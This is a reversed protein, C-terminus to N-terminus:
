EFSAWAKNREIVEGGSFDIFHKTEIVSISGANPDIVCKYLNGDLSAM